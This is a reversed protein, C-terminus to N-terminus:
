IHTWTRRSIISWMTSHSIIHDYEDVLISISMVGRKGNAQAKGEAYRARMERVTGDTLIARPHQEGPLAGQKRHPRTATRLREKKRLVGRRTRGLIVAIQSAYMRPNNNLFEVEAQTWGRM